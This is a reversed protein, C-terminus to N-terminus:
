NAFLGQRQLVRMSRGALNSLPVHFYDHGLVAICRPLLPQDAAKVGNLIWDHMPLRGSSQYTVRRDSLAGYKAANTALEHVVLAMMLALKPPLLVAPGDM